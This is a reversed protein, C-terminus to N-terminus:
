MQDVAMETPLLIYMDREARALYKAEGRLVIKNVRWM